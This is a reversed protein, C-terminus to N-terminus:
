STESKRSVLKAYNKCLALAFSHQLRSSSICLVGILRGRNEAADEEENRATRM